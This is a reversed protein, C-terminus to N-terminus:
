ANAQGGTNATIHQWITNWVSAPENPMDIVEQMGYRNKADWADRRVTYIVRETGGVGKGKRAGKGTPGGTNGGEVVTYFNGFLVCDSWKATAAWTKAHVDSVWRDYDPGVPNKFTSVKCHSLLLITSGRAARLRDLSALLRLWENVSLDYGKQYSAFGREGWDGGFDRDCVHQHCLREVGGLADLALTGIGQDAGILTDILALLEPWTAVTATPVAPVSGSGLLTTYGTEGAVMVIAPRDAYAAATTKGWGEVANLVVRPPQFQATPTVLAPATVSAPTTMSPAAYPPAPPRGNPAANPPPPGTRPKPPTM